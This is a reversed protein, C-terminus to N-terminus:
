AARTLSADEYEEPLVPTDDEPKKRHESSIWFRLVGLIVLEILLGGFAAFQNAAFAFFQGFLLSVLTSNALAKLGHTRDQRYLLVLGYTALAGAAFGSLLTGWESFSLGNAPRFDGSWVGLAISGVIQLARVVFIIVVLRWLWHNGVLRWYQNTLSHRWRLILPPVADDVVEANQLTERLSDTFPSPFNAKDLHALAAEQHERDLRGIALMEVSQVAYFMHDSPTVKDVKDVKDISRAILFLIVLVAYILAVAPRFFYDNDKTIFKGLEDIFAGFGAGGIVAATPKWVDSAFIMLMGFAVIMALAGWLMHAIHLTSNGVQPYGTLQLYLRIGLLSVVASVLWVETLFPSSLDRVKYPSRVPAKPLHSGHEPGVTATAITAPDADSPTSTMTDQKIPEIAVGNGTGAGSGNSTEREALIRENYIFRSV